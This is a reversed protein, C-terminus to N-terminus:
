FETIFEWVIDINSLRVVSTHMCAAYIHDCPNLTSSKLANLPGDQLPQEAQRLEEGVSFEIM